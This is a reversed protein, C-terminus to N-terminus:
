ESLLTQRDFNFVGLVITQSSTFSSLSGLAVCGHLRTTTNILTAVEAQAGHMQM